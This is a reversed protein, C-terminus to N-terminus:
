GSGYAADEAGTDITALYRRVHDVVRQAAYIVAEDGPRHVALRDLEASLTDLNPTDM